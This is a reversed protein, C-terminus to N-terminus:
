GPLIKPFQILICTPTHMFGFILESTFQHFLVHFSILQFKRHTIYKVGRGEGGGGGGGGGWGGVGWQMGLLIFHIHCM